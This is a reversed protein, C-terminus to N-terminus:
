RGLAMEFQGMNYLAEAKAIIASCSNNYSKATEADVMAEHARNLRCLLFYYKLIRILNLYKVSESMQKQSPLSPRDRTEPWNSSELLYHCGRSLWYQLM